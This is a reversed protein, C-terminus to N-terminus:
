SFQSWTVYHSSLAKFLKKPEKGLFYTNLIQADTLNLSTSYTKVAQLWEEPNVKTDGTFVPPELKAHHLASAIM